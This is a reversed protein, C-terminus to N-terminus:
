ATVTTNFVAALQDAADMVTVTQPGQTRLRLSFSHRGANGAKFAYSSPLGHGATASSDSSSFAVTGTFTPVRNGYADTVTVTLGFAVGAKVTAPGMLLLQAAAGPLNTLTFRVAPGAPDVGAWVLYRGAVTNATPTVSGQGKADLTIPAPALVASPGTAPVTFRVVGGAVPEHFHSTVTVALPQAFATGVVASQLNGGTLKITFGRSEFAGIDVTKNRTRAFGREDTAPLGSVTTSGAALAPSGPLLALTQVPSGYNDLPALLANIPHQATGVQNGDSGNLLGLLHSGDGILNFSGQVEGNVDPGFVPASNGAVLTNSLTVGGASQIGGGFNATNGAVTCNVLTLTSPGGGSDLGGGANGAANGALTCDTLSATGFNSLGGGHVASNGSLTASTFAVTGTNFVGGGGGGKAANDALTSGTVSALGGNDLGGGVQASDGTLVCGTLTATGTNNVGGGYNGATDGTSLFRTLTLSGRNNIAGGNRGRASNGVSKCGTLTVAGRGNFLGGGDLDASNGSLTSSTLTVTGINSVGGGYEASNGSVTVQTLTALDGNFLGGGFKTATNASLTSHSLTLRGANAIGGGYPASNGSLTCNTLSATYSSYVAGGFHTATNGSLVCNTLTASGAGLNALAGGTVASNGLFTSNKAVFTGSSQLVGGVGASNQTLTCATLTETGQNYLAGGLRASNGSLTCGDLAARGRANYVAGGFFQATDGTLVSNSLTLTGGGQFNIAGGRVAAGHAL